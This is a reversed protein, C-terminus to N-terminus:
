DSRGDPALADVWPEEWVSVVRGDASLADILAAFRPHASLTAADGILVLQRRARTLTVNLRREDAVFGLDRAPNSRVFTAVIAEKERGQFANVTAVEIEALDPHARLRAVQASYPAIVALDRAALGEARLRRVALAALAVELPEYLSRTADDRREESAGATDVFWVPEHLIPAQGVVSPSDTYTPGYVGAVLARIAPAMRHQVQLMPLEGGGEGWRELFSRGLPSGPVKSVPGLQKPDGALVLREVLPVAAWLAAEHAQTAEDVVAFPRPPLEGGLAALTGFTTAIVQAGDLAVARAQTAVVQREHRLRSGTATGWHRILDRDLAALTPGLVGRAIWAEVHLDALAEGIRAVPGLRVVALGEAAARLALHDVAANSDALAYARQGDDVARRLVKGLVWTKGTGPPGWIVSLSLARLAVAAARQQAPDLGPLAVLEPAVPPVELTLLANKLASRHEDARELGKRFRVFTAPDHRRRVRVLNPEGELERHVTLEASTGDVWEVTAPWDDVWAPDGASLGDHLLVGRPARVGLRVRPGRPVVEVVRVLPWAHGNAVQDDPSLADLRAHEQREAAEEQRLADHLAALHPENM